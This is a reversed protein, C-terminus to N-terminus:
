KAERKLEKKDIKGGGTKPLIDRFEIIRPVKYRPIREQCYKIVEGPSMRTGDNLVIIAKVVEGRLKDRLGIVAVDNISPHTILINEVEQLYVKLGGTKIMENKRGVFYFYGENDKKALDGSYYWDEKFSKTNEEPSDIYGSVVAPGKFILEGISNAPVERGSDDVITVEYHKCPRGISGYRVKEEPSNAIAIGTTETSGWVALVPIGFQKKFENIINDQTYMGGSEAIRLSELDSGKCHTSMMEYMPALGMMTTVSNKKITKAITKPNVEELLVLTGMTFLARAFIEHPHAFSAFMCLHIDESTIRMKENAAITNWFINSHTTIAGKPIGSSGSTYNLYAIDEKSIRSDNIPEKPYCVRNWPTFPSCEKGIVIINKITLLIEEDLIPLLKDQIILLSLSNMLIFRKVEEVKNLVNIPVPLAGIKSIGLFSLVLEPIRNMILGVRDHKRIGLSELSNAIGNTCKYVEAYTMSVNKHILFVKSPNKKYNNNLKEILTVEM